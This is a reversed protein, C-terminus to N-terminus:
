SRNTCSCGTRCRTSCEEVPGDRRRPRTARPSTCRRRCMANCDSNLRDAEAPDQRGPARRLKDFIPKLACQVRCQPCQFDAFEVILVKAGDNQFARQGAAARGVV